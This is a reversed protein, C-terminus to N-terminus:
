SPKRDGCEYAERGDMSNHIFLGPEDEVPRCWCDSTAIHERLADRPTIHTSGDNIDAM